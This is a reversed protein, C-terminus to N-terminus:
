VCRTYHTRKLDEGFFVDLKLLFLCYYLIISKHGILPSFFLPNMARIIESKDSNIELRRGGGM